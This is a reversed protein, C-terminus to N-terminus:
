NGEMEEEAWDLFIIEGDANTHVVAPCAGENFIYTPWILQADAAVPYRAAVHTGITVSFDEPDIETIWLETGNERVEWVMGVFEADLKPDSGEADPDFSGRVLAEAYVDFSNMFVSDGNNVQILDLRDTGACVARNEIWFDGIVEMGDDADEVEFCLWDPLEDEEAFFWDLTWSGICQANDSHRIAFFRGDEMLQITLGPIGDIGPSDVADEDVPFYNWVGVLFRLMSDYDTPEEPLEPPEASPEETAPETPAETVPETPADTVPETPADTVPETPADTVPETPADTVPETPADTAPKAPAENVPAATPVAADTSAAPVPPPATEGAKACAVLGLVLLAALLLCFIKKSNM